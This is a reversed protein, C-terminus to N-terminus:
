VVGGPVLWNLIALLFIYILLAFLANTIKGKAAVVKQPDRGSAGYQIGGIIVMTVIVLSVMGSL